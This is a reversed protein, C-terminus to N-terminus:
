RPRSSATERDGTPPRTSLTPDLIQAPQADLKRDLAKCFKHIRRANTGLDGRNGVRSASRLDVRTQGDQDLRIHIM